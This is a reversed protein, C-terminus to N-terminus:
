LRMNGTRKLNSLFSSSTFARYDFLTLTDINISRKGLQETTWRQMHEVQRVASFMLNQSWQFSCSFSLFFFSWSSLKLQHYKKKKKKKFCGKIRSLGFAQSLKHEFASRQRTAWCNWWLSGQSCADIRQWVIVPLFSHRHTVSSWGAVTVVAGCVYVCVQDTGAAQNAASWLGM